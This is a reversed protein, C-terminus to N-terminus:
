NNVPEINLAKFSLKEHIKMLGNGSLLFNFFFIGVVQSKEMQWDFIKKRGGDIMKEFFFSFVFFVRVRLKNHLWLRKIKYGGSDIWWLAFSNNDHHILAFIFSIM